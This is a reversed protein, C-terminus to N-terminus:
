PTLAGPASCIGTLDQETGTCAWGEDIAARLAERWDRLNPLGAAPGTSHALVSYHPRPATGPDTPVPRVRNPDAGLLEFVTRALGYWTTSGSTTGHYTGPPADADVLAVLWAALDKSWTPQGWQDNVVQITPRERELRAVTRVFNRGHEGYLWATRVVWHREPLETRVAWEGAAKTRGYASAPALPAGEPYPRDARGSFVYDTSLHLLRAGDEACARALLQPGVANVAFAEAERAQAADVATWAACNVVVDHGAVAAPVALPDTIDLAAFDAATVPRGELAALLDRGLM